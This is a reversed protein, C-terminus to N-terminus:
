TSIVEDVLGIDASSVLRGVDVRILMRADLPVLGTLHRTDFTSAFEPASKVQEPQLTLVDSVAGVLVGLVRRGFNLVIAVTCADCVV